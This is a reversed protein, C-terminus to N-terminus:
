EDTMDLERKVFTAAITAEGVATTLQYVDKKIVDGCAYIGSLSTQMRNDVVLYNKDRKIDLEKICSLVPDYGTFIFLGTLAIKEDNKLIIGALLNDKKVLEKIQVNEKKIVNKLSFVKKKLSDEVKNDSKFLLYVKSAISSLYIAEEFAANGSGVVAVDKDKYFAGDCIACWSIGRGVLSEEGELNLKRPARGSAIIVTKTEIKENDTVVIKKNNEIEIKSVTGYLYNVELNKLQQYVNMSLNIGDSDLVGPYNEIKSTRNMVGGPAGKEIIVFDVNSRKLYIAATMGAIGAGIIVCDTKKM